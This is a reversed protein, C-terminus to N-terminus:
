GRVYGQLRVNDRKKRGGQRPHMIWPSEEVHGEQMVLKTKKQGEIMQEDKSEEAVNQAGQTLIEENPWYPATVDDMM